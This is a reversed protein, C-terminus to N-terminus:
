TATAKRAIYQAWYRADNTLQRQWASNTPSWRFGHGKLIDIIARDPKGPFNLRVRNDATDYDIRVNGITESSEEETALASQAQKIKLDHIRQEVQRITAGINTLRYSPHGVRGMFDPALLSYARGESGVIKTLAGHRDAEPLKMVARVHQNEVKWLDRLAILGALKDTLKLVAAPDDSSISTGEAAIKVARQKEQALRHLEYGKRFGRDIKARFRRDRGESYHGVLIPQGFPITDARDRALKLASESEHRIKDAARQLRVLRAQVRENYAAAKTDCAICVARGERTLGSETPENCIACTTM